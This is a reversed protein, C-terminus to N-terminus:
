NVNNINYKNLRKVSSMKKVIYGKAVAIDLKSWIIRILM